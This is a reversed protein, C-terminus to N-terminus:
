IRARNLRPIDQMFKLTHSYMEKAQDVIQRYNKSQLSIVFSRLVYQISQHKLVAISSRILGQWTILLM